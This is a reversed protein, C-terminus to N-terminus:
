YTKVFDIGRVYMFIILSMHSPAIVLTLVLSTQEDLKSITADLKNM